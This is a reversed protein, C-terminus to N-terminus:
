HRNRRDFECPRFAPRRRDIVNKGVVHIKIWSASHAIPVTTFRGVVTVLAKIKARGVVGLHVGVYWDISGRRPSDDKHLVPVVIAIMSRKAIDNRAPGGIIHNDIVPAAPTTEIVM